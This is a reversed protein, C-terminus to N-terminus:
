IVQVQRVVSVQHGCSSGSFLLPHLTLKSRRNTSLNNCLNVLLLSNICEMTAFFVWLLNNDDFFPKSTSGQSNVLKACAARRDARHNTHGVGLDEGPSTPTWEHVLHAGRTSVVRKNITALRNALYPLIGRTILWCSRPGVLQVQLRNRKLQWKKLNQFIHFGM